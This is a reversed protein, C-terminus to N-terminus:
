ARRRPQVVSKRIQDNTNVWMRQGTRINTLEATVFYTRLTRNGARDVVTRISGTLMFDAGVENGIGALTEDSVYGGALQDEREARLEDRTNGGAVFNMRGSNFIEQEMINTIIATDIHESSDNRFRGVIATPERGLERITQEVRPSGLADSILARSVIRVDSDNWFGSLDVQTNADLRQVKPGSSCSSLAVLFLAVFGVLFRKGISAALWKGKKM